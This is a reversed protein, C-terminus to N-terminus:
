GEKAVLYVQDGVGTMFKDKLYVSYMWEAREEVMVM